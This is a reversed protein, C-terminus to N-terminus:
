SEGDLMNTIVQGMDQLALGEPMPVSSILSGPCLIPAVCHDGSWPDTNDTIVEEPFAGLATEWSCRYGRSYGVIIDPAWPPLERGPFMRSVIYAREIPRRGNFPDIVRELDEALRQLLAERDDPAVTGNPERGAQNVYLSNLGLGYASTRSWDLCAFMDRNRHEPNSIHSYGEAALWSNLGFGRNFPAFGHDSLVILETNRDLLEMAQGVARDAKNYLEAMITRFRPPTSSHLPSEPDITRYFMHQNLDTSSFYFFLLGDKWQNLAHTFMRLREDFVMQAQSHFDDDNFVGRSLAKTDEPFGQTYYPGVAEAISRAYWSPGSIPLAPNEPDINLPSLYLRLRPSLEKLYFRGIAHVTSIGALAPFSFRVWPSWQKEGIIFSNGQVDIRVAGALRDAWVEATTEMVPEGEVLSNGPGAIRCRYCSDGNDRVPIVVGGSTDDSLSRPDDTYFTFSGQSGRIDPTGMGSLFRGNRDQPAPFDVPLKVMTVPIGKQLLNRWFPEGKRLLEVGGGALPLRLNGLDLTKEPPNVRSTSLYPQLNDPNRHVFDFIGHVDPGEGTIFGSWAVPSQPPNSTALNRLSGMEMLKKTNPMLGRAAFRRVLVPDLGDFAVVLLKRKPSFGGRCGTQLALLASGAAATKLFERRNM